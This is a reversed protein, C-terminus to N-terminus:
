RESNKSSCPTISLITDRVEIRSVTARKTFRNDSGDHFLWPFGHITRPESGRSARSSVSAQDLSQKCKRSTPRLESQSSNRAHETIEAMGLEGIRRDM